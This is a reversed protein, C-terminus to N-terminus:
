GDIKHLLEYVIFSFYPVIIIFLYLELPLGLIFVNILGNGPYTWARYTRENILEWAAIILFISGVTALREKISDYLRVKYKIELFIGFALLLALILLEM